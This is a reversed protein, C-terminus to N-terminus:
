CSDADVCCNSPSHENCRCVSCVLDQTTASVFDSYPGVHSVSALVAVRLYYTTGSVLSTITTSANAAKTSVDTTRLACINKSTGYQVRYGRIFTQYKLQWPLKWKLFVSLSSSSARASTISPKPGTFPAFQTCMM